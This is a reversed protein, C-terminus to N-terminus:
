RTKHNSLQREVTILQAVIQIQEPPPRRESSRAIQNLLNRARTLEALVPLGDIREQQENLGLARRRLLASIGRSGAAAKLQRLEDDTLRVKISKTRNM